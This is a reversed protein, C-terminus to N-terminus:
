ADDINIGAHEAVDRLAAASLTDGRVPVLWGDSYRDPFAQGVREVLFLHVHGTKTDVAVMRDPRVKGSEVDRQDVLVIFGSYRSKAYRGRPLDLVEAIKRALRSKPPESTTAVPRTDLEELRKRLFELEEILQAKTRRRPDGSSATSTRSSAM